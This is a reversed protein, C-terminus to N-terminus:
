VQIGRFVLNPFQVGKFVAVPGAPWSFLPFLFFVGAPDMGDSRLHWPALADGQVLVGNPVTENGQNLLHSERMCMPTLKYLTHVNSIYPRLMSLHCLAM